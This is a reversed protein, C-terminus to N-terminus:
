ARLEEDRSNPRRDVPERHLLPLDAIEAHAAVPVEREIFAPAPKSRERDIAIGLLVVMRCCLLVGALVALDAGNLVTAMASHEVIIFDVAGRPPVFHDFANAMGAGVLLGLALPALHDIRSLERVVMWGLVVIVATALATLLAAYGGAALGWGMKPNFHVGLALWSTLDVRREGLLVLAALKIVLDSLAVVTAILLTSLFPRSRM